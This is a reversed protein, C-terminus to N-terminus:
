PAGVGNGTAGTDDPASMPQPPNLAAEQQGMLAEHAHAVLQSGLEHTQQRQAQVAEHVLGLRHMHLDLAKGLRSEMADVFTRADEADIKSQTASLQGSVQILAIKEKSALEAQKMQLDAQTQLQAKQLDAQAQLQAKQLQVQNADALPQLQQVQAQLQQLQAQLQGAQQQQQEKSLSPDLIEAIQDGVPGINRLKIAQAILKPANPGAAQMVVPSTIITDAFDASQERESNFSPGTSVTVVHDGRTSVSGPQEPSNIWVQAATGNAKRIPVQRPTDYIKDLLDEGIVGVQTIMDLYHDVFHFNGAQGLDAIRQLAIGSKENQRQAATPLPTSGLASQIARRAAEKAIEIQQLPPDYPNRQPLPLVTGAPLGEVTPKVRIVGIPKRVSDSLAQLETEDLQGEYVFYPFRPTASIVEAECTILYAYLMQPDRALRVASLIRRKQTGEEEVYLIKGMCGIIPIYKGPWTTEELIEIGNTLQQIVVPVDVTRSELHQAGEPKQDLEEDLLALPEPGGTAFLHLQSSSHEIHWYEGVFVKQAGTETTKFWQEASAQLEPYHMSVQAEKWRKDFDRLDWAERVWCRKMDSLDSRQAESDPTVLNPNHVTDIWLDMASAKPSAYRFNVRCFGYSRQVANEFATTYAIQAKSRYEIERWKDEYFQATQDGAGLGTPTFKVAQKNQRVDNIIQNIYQSLEDANLVPRNEKERDRRAKEDWPDGAVYYMDTTGQERIPQWQKSDHSFCDRLDKLDPDDVAM